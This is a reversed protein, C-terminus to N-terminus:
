QSSGFETDAAKWSGPFTETQPAPPLSLLKQVSRPSHLNGPKTRTKMQRTKRLRTKRRAKKKQRKAIKQHTQKAALKGKMMTMKKRM